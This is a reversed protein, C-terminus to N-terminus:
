LAGEKLRALLRRLAEKGSPVCEIQHGERGLVAQALDRLEKM